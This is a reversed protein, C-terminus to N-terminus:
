GAALIWVEEGDAFDGTRRLGANLAVKRSALNCPNIRARVQPVGLAFLWQIVTKAAESGYGRMQWRSGIVWAVEAHTAAVSAQMYGIPEKSARDRVAWNFWLEKRDPAMRAELSAYTEGLADVSEPLAQGTYEYLTPDSLVSFLNQEDERLIPTLRLRDTEVILEAEAPLAPLQKM